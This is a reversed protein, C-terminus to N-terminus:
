VARSRRPRFFLAALALTLLALTGPEPVGAATVTFITDGLRVTIESGGAGSGALAFAEIGGFDGQITTTGLVDFFDFVHAPDPDYGLWVQLVAAGFVADGTVRIKDEETPGFAELLVIGDALILDGDIVMLGPSFGPDIVGGLDNVTGIYTGDGTLLGGPNVNINTAAVVGGNQASLRGEGFSGALVVDLVAGANLRSGTGDVTISGRGAAGAGITTLGNPDNSVVAGALIDLRGISNVGVGIVGKSIPAASTVTSGDVTISTGAGVVNAHGFGGLGAGVGFGPTTFGDAEIVVTAGNIFSAYGTGGGGPVLGGGGVLMAGAENPFFPASGDLHVSGGDVLLNGFSGSTRGIDLRHTTVSSANDVTVAGRANTGGVQLILDPLNNVGAVITAGTDTGTSDLTLVAGNERAASTASFNVSANSQNNTTAFVAPDSRNEARIRATYQGNPALFGVPITRSNCINAAPFCGLLAIRTNTTDDWVEIINRTFGSPPNTWTIFPTLGPTVVTPVPQPLAPVGVLSNTVATVSDGGNQLTVTWPGTLAPDFPITRGFQDRATGSLGTFGSEAFLNRLPRTTAGQQATGRTTLNPSVEDVVVSLKLGSILGITNPGENTLFAFASGFSIPDAAAPPALLGGMVVATTLATRRLVAARM